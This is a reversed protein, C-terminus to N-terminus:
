DESRRRPSPTGAAAALVRPRSTFRTLKYRQVTETGIGFRHRMNYVHVRATNLSMPLGDAAQFRDVAAALEQTTLGLYGAETLAQLIRRHMDTLGDGDAQRLM